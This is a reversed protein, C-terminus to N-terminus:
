ERICFSDEEDPIPARPIIAHRAVYGRFANWSFRAYRRGCTKSGYARARTLFYRCLGGKVRTRARLARFVFVVSNWYRTTSLFIGSLIAVTTNVRRNYLPFFFNLGLWRVRLLMTTTIAKKKYATHRRARHTRFFMNM